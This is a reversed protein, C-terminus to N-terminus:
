RGPAGGATTFQRIQSAHEITHGPIGTLIWAYAQGRYRHAPPLLTAAKEDTMGKLSEQVRQWCYHLYGLLDSRTWATSLM